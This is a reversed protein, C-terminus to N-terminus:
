NTKKANTAFRQRGSSQLSHAYHSHRRSLSPRAMMRVEEDWGVVSRKLPIGLRLSIVYDNYEFRVTFYEMFGILLEYLSARNAGLSVRQGANVILAPNQMALEGVNGEFFYTDYGHVIRQRREGVHIQQLNPLIGCRQLYYVVM